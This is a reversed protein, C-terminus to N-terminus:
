VVLKESHLDLSPRLDTWTPDTTSLTVIPCTKRLSSQKARNTMMGGREVNMSDTWNGMLSHLVSYSLRAEGWYYFAYRPLPHCSSEDAQLEVTMM